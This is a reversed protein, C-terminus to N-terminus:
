KRANDVRERADAMAKRVQQKWYAGPPGDHLLVEWEAIATENDGRQAKALALYYRAIPSLPYLTRVYEFTGAADAGVVGASARVQAEGLTVAYVRLMTDNGAQAATVARQYFVVAERHQGLRTSINGLQVLAAVDNPNQELLIQLPRRRLLSQQRLIQDELNTFVSPQGAADPSGLPLYLGLACLPVLVALIHGLRQDGAAVEGGHRHRGKNALTLMLKIVVGATLAAAVIYFHWM